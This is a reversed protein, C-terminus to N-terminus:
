ENFPVVIQNVLFLLVFVVFFGLLMLLMLLSYKSSEEALLFAGVQWELIFQSSFGKRVFDLSAFIKGIFRTTYCASLCLCLFMYFLSLSLSLCVFLCISLFAPLCAPWVLLFASQHICIILFFSLNDGLDVESTIEFQVLVPLGISGIATSVMSFYGRSVWYLQLVNCLVYWVWTVKKEHHAPYKSISNSSCSITFSLSPALCISISGSLALLLSCCLAVSVACFHNLWFNENFVQRPLM